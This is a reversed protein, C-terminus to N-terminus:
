WGLEAAVVYLAVGLMPRACALWRQWRTTDLLDRGLTDLASIEGRRKSSSMLATENIPPAANM